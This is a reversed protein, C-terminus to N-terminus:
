PFTLWARSGNNKVSLSHSLFFKLCVLPKLDVCSIEKNAIDLTVTSMTPRKISYPLLLTYPLVLMAISIIALGDMWKNMWGDIMWGDVWGGVRGKM